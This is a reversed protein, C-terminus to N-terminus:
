GIERRGHIPGLSIGIFITRWYGAGLVLATHFGIGSWDEMM